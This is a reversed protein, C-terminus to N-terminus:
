QAGAAETGAQLLGQASLEEGLKRWLEVQDERSMLMVLAVVNQLSLEGGMCVAQCYIFAFLGMMMQCDMRDTVGGHGPISDSFDKVKM